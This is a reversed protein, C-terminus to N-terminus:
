EALRQNTMDSQVKNYIAAKFANPETEGRTKTGLRSVDVAISLKAEAREDRGDM